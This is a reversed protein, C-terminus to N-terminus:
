RASGRHNRDPLSAAAAGTRRGRSPSRTQREACPIPPAATAALTEGFLPEDASRSPERRLATCRRRRALIRASRAIPEITLILESAVDDPVSHAVKIIRGAVERGNLMFTALVGEHPEGGKFMIDAEVRELTTGDGTPRALNVIM